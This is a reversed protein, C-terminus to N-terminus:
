PPEPDIQIPVTRGCVIDARLIGIGTRVVELVVRDQGDKVRAVAAGVDMEVHSEAAQWVCRIVEFEKAVVGVIRCAKAFALDPDLRNIYTRIGVTTEAEARGKLRSHRHLM